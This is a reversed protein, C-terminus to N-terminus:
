FMFIINFSSVFVAFFIQSVIIGGCIRMCIHMIQATFNAPNVFIRHLEKQYEKM